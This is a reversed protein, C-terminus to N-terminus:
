RQASNVHSLEVLELGVLVPMLGPNKSVSFIGSVEVPILDIM